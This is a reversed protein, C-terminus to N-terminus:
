GRLRSRAWRLLYRLPWRLVSAMALFVILAIWGGHLWGVYLVIPVGAAILPRARRWHNDRAPLMGLVNAVIGWGCALFLALSM